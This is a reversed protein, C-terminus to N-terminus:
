FPGFVIELKLRYTKEIHKQRDTKKDIQKKTERNKQRDTKQRDTKKTWRNKDIQKLLHKKALM